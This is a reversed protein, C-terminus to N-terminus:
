ANERGREYAEGEEVDTLLRKAVIYITGGVKEGTMPEWGAPLINSDKIGFAFSGIEYQM